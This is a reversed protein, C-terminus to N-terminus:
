GGAGPSGSVESRIETWAGQIEGLLGAVEELAAPDNKLNAHLLRLIMYDYLADLKEPLDSEVDMNLSAKLGNEVIDIARSIAKGKAPINGREMEGRALAIAAQAGEFLLQILQHPDATAVSSEVGVSKYASTPNSFNGFM